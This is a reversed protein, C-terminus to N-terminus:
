SLFMYLAVGVFIAALGYIGGNMAWQKREERRTRAVYYDINLLVEVGFLLLQRELVRDSRLAKAPAPVALRSLLVEVGPRAAETSRLSKRQKEFSFPFALEDPVPPRGNGAAGQPGAEAPDAM